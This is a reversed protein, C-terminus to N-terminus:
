KMQWRTWKPVIEVSNVSCALGHIKQIIEGARERAYSQTRM